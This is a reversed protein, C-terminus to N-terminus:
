QSTFSVSGIVYELESRIGECHGGNLKKLSQPITAIVEAQIFDAEKSPALSSDPSLLFIIHQRGPVKQDYMYIDVRVPPGPSWTAMPDGKYKEKEKQISTHIITFIISDPIGQPYSRASLLLVRDKKEEITYRDLPYRITFGYQSNRYTKWLALDDPKSSVCGRPDCDDSGTSYSECRFTLLNWLGGPSDWGNSDLAAVFIKFGYLAILLLVAGLFLKKPISYSM